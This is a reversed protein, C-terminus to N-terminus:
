VPAGMVARGAIGRETELGALAELGTQATIGRRGTRPCALLVRQVTKPM